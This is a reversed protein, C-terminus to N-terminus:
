HKYNEQHRRLGSKQYAWFGCKKCRFVSGRLSPAKRLRSRLKYRRRNYLANFQRALQLDKRLLTRRQKEEEKRKKRTVRKVKEEVVKEKEGNEEELDEEAMHYDVVADKIDDLLETSAEDRETQSSCKLLESIDRVIKPQVIEVEEDELIDTDADSVEEENNGEEVPADEEEDVDEIDERIKEVAQELHEVQLTAVSRLFLLIEDENELVIKGNNRYDQVFGSIWNSFEGANGDPGSNNRTLLMKLLLLMFKKGALDVVETSFEQGQKSKKAKSAEEVKELSFNQSLNSHSCYFNSLDAIM